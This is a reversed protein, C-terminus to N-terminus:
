DVPPLLTQGDQGEGGVPSCDVVLSTFTSSNWRWCRARVLALRSRIAFVAPGGFRPSDAGLDDDVDQPKLALLRGLPHDVDGFAAEGCLRRDDAPADTFPMVLVGLTCFVALILRWRAKFFAKVSGAWRKRASAIAGQSWGCARNHRAGVVIRRAGRGADCGPRIAEVGRTISM